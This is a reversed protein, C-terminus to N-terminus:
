ENCLTSTPMTEKSLSTKDLLEWVAPKMELCSCVKLSKQADPVIPLRKNEFTSIYKENRAFFSSQCETCTQENSFFIYFWPQKFITAIQSVSM